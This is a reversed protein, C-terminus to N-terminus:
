PSSKLRGPIFHWCQTLANLLHSGKVSLMSYFYYKQNHHGHTHFISHIKTGQLHLCNGGVLLVYRGFLKGHDLFGCEYIEHLKFTEFDDWEQNLKEYVNRVKFEALCLELIWMKWPTKDRPLVFQTSSSYLWKM